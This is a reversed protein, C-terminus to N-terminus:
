DKDYWDIEQQEKQFVIAAMALMFALLSEVFKITGKDQLHWMFLALCVIAAFEASIFIVKVERM